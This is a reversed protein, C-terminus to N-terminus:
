AQPNITVTFKKGQWSFDFSAGTGAVLKEIDTLIEMGLEIARWLKSM